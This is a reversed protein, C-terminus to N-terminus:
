LLVGFPFDQLLKLHKLLVNIEENTLSLYVGLNM